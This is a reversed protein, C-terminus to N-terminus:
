RNVSSRSCDALSKSALKISDVPGKAMKTYLVSNARTEYRSKRRFDETDTQILILNVMEGKRNVVVDLEKNASAKIKNM